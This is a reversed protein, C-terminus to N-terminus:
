YGWLEFVFVFSIEEEEEEEEIEDGMEKSVKEDIM